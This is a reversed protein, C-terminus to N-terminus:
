LGYNPVRRKRGRTPVLNVEDEKQTKGTGAHFDKKEYEIGRAFWMGNEFKLNMSFKKYYNNKEVDLQNDRLIMRTRANEAYVGAGRSKSRDEGEGNMGSKNLHHLVLITTKLRRLIAYFQAAYSNCNEKATFLSLPDIVLLNPKWAKCFEAIQIYTQTVMLKEDLLISSVDVSSMSIYTINKVAEYLKEEGVSNISLYQHCITRFRAHSINDPDEGNLILVKGAQEVPLVGLFPLGTAISVALQLAIYSKGSAGLGDLMCITDRYILKDVLWDNSDRPETDLWATLGPEISFLTPTEKAQTKMM